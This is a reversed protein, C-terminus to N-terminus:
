FCEPRQLQLLYCRIKDSHLKLSFLRHTRSRLHKWNQTVLTSELWMYYIYIHDMSGFPLVLLRKVTSSWSAGPWVKSTLLLFKMLSACNVLDFGWQQLHSPEFEGWENRSGTGLSQLSWFWGNNLVMQQQFESSWGKFLLMFWSFMCWWFADQFGCFTQIMGLFVRQYNLM